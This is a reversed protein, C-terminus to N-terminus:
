LQIREDWQPFHKKSKSNNDNFDAPIEKQKIECDHLEENHEAHIM